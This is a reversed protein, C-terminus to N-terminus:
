EKVKMLLEPNEFINGIVKFDESHIYDLNFPTFCGFKFKVLIAKGLSSYLKNELIDGEYIDKGEIDLIGTFQSIEFRDPYVGDASIMLENGCEGIMRIDLSGNMSLHMEELTGSYAKFIPEVWKNKQSDWIRFKRKRIM